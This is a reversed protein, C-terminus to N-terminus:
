ELKKIYNILNINNKIYKGEKLLNEGKFNTTYKEFYNNFDILKNNNVCIFSFNLNIDNYFIKNKNIYNYLESLVQPFNGKYKDENNEHTIDGILTM